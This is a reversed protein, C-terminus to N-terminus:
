DTSRAVPAPVSKMEEEREVNDIEPTQAAIWEVVDSRGYAIACSLPTEGESNEADKGIFELGLEDHLFRCIELHGGSAAWHAATFGNGNRVRPDANGDAVLLKAVDLSGSWSAWMLPTNGTATIANALSEKKEGAKDLLYNCVNIHGGCGFHTHNAGCSAWHLPTAGDRTSFCSTCTSWLVDRIDGEVAEEDRELREVLAEIGKLNGTGAAWHLVTAGWDDHEAYNSGHDLLLSMIDSPTCENGLIALDPTVENRAFITLGDTFVNEMAMVTEATHMKLSHDTSSSSTSTNSSPRKAVNEEQWQNCLEAFVGPKKTCADLFQNLLLMDTTSELLEKGFPLTDRHFALYAHRPAITTELRPNFFAVTPLNRRANESVRLNHPVFEAQQGNNEEEDKKKEDPPDEKDVFGNGIDGSGGGLVTVLFRLKPAILNKADMKKLKPFENFLRLRDETSYGCSTLLEEPEVTALWCAVSIDASYRFLHKHRKPHHHSLANKQKTQQQQDIDFAKDIICLDEEEEEQSSSSTDMQAIMEESYTVGRWIFDEEDEKEMCENNEGDMFIPIELDLTDEYHPIGASADAVLSPDMSNSYHADYDDDTLSRLPAMPSFTAKPTLKTNYPLSTPQFGNIPVVFLHFQMLAITMATGISIIEKRSGFPKMIAQITKNTNMKIANITNKNRDKITIDSGSENQASTSVETKPEPRLDIRSM